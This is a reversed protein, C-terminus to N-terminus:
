FIIGSRKELEEVEGGYMAARRAESPSAREVVVNASM